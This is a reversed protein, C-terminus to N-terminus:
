EVESEAKTIKQILLKCIDYTPIEADEIYCDDYYECDYCTDKNMCETAIGKIEQLIKRQWELKASYQAVLKKAELAFLKNEKKLEAYDKTEQENIKAYKKIQAKLDDREKLLESSEELVSENIDLLNNCKQQTEQYLKRWYDVNKQLEGNQKRLGENQGQLLNIENVSLM